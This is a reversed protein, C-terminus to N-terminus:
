DRKGVIRLVYLFINIFDLYLELASYIIMKTKQSEDECLEYHNRLVQVDYAILCLFLGIGAYCVIMDLMPLNVFIGIVSAILLTILGVFLLTSYKTLDKKTTLGIVILNVFLIATIGFAIGITKVDYAVGISGLTYGTIIAYLFYCVCAMAPSMKHLNASFYIVVGLQVLFVIWFSITNMYMFRWLGFAYSAYAVIATVLLGMTMVGFCKALYRNLGHEDNKALNYLEDM